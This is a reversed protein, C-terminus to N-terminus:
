EKICRVPYAHSSALSHIPFVYGGNLIFFIPHSVHSEVVAWNGGRVGVCELYGNSNRLGAAPYWIIQSSGFKGSFNMGANSEDYTHYFKHHLKLSRSWVDRESGNPVRWGAPCPDLVSKKKSSHTWCWDEYRYEYEEHNCWDESYGKGRLFTTPYRISYAQADSDAFQAAPWTITSKAEISKHISSSGLFPDKRGWQYLLGLAGVDGPTASTAGLNRDMMVGANNYYLQEKPQDTFWIHWSWCIRGSCEKIAILANGEKFNKPTEFVVYEDKHSVYKILDGVSPAEDTGFSEWLVEAYADKGAYFEGNDVCFKYVGPESVIYCNAIGNASLDEALTPDLDKTAVNSSLTDNKKNSNVCSSSVFILAILLTIYKSYKM